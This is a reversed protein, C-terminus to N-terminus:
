SREEEALIESLNSKRLKRVTSIGAAAAALLICAVLLAGYQLLLETYLYKHKLVRYFTQYLLLFLAESLAYCLGTRLFVYWFLARARLGAAYLIALPRLCLETKRNQNHFLILGALLLLFIMFLSNKWYSASVAGSEALNTMKAAYERWLAGAPHLKVSYWDEETALERYEEGLRYYLYIDMYFDNEIFQRGKEVDHFTFFAYSCVHSSPIDQEDQFLSWYRESAPLFASFGGARFSTASNFFVGALVYDLDRGLVSWTLTDGLDAKLRSYTSYSIVIADERRMLADDKFLYLEDPIVMQNLPELSGELVVGPVAEVQNEGCRLPWHGFYLQIGLSASVNESQAIQRYTETTCSGVCVDFRYAEYAETNKRKKYMPEILSVSIVALLGSILLYQLISKLFDRLRLSGTFVRRILKMDKM